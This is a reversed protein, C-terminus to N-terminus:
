ITLINNKIGNSVTMLVQTSFPLANSELSFQEVINPVVVSLLIIIVGLSMLILIIPYILTQGIKRKVKQTQEIHDALRSLVMGLHGSLEGATIMSRYLPNFVNSFNSLSDSFSYGEIVKMRIDYIISNMANIKNQKEIIALVEDLPIAANVLTSMQRTVLVLDE